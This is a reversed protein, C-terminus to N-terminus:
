LANRPPVPPGPASPDPAPPPAPVAEPLDGMGEGARFEYSSFGGLLRRVWRQGFVVLLPVAALAILIADVWWGPVWAASPMGLITAATNPILVVAGVIALILAIYTIGLMRINSINQLEAIRNSVAALQNSSEALRNSEEANRMLLLDSLGQQVGRALDQIRELEGSVPPLARELGPLLHPDLRGLEAVSVIARGVAARLQAADRELAWVESVLASRGRAQLGALQGDFTEIRELYERSVEEVLDAVQASVASLRLGESFTHHEPGAGVLETGGARVLVGAYRPRGGPGPRVFSILTGEGSRVVPHRPRDGPLGLRRLAEVVPDPPGPTPAPETM